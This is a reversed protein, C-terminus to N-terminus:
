AKTDLVPVNLEGLRVDIMELARNITEHSIDPLRGSWMDEAENFGQLIGERGAKLRDVDDGAGMLVFNAIRESTQNIGFFGDESVLEKAEAQTLNEISKGQYGIDSLSFLEAQRNTETKLDVIIQMQFELLYQNTIDKARLTESEEINKQVGKAIDLYASHMFSNDVNM